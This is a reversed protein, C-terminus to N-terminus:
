VGGAKAPSRLLDLILQGTSNSDTVADALKANTEAQKALAELTRRYQAGAVLRETIILWLAVLLLFVVPGQSMAWEVFRETM